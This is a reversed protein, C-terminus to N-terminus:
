SRSNPVYLIVRRTRSPRSSTAPTEDGVRSTITRESGPVVRLVHWPGADCRGTPRDAGATKGAGSEGLLVAARPPTGTLLAFVTDGCEVYVGAAAEADAETLVTGFQRLPEVDIEAPASTLCARARFRPLTLAV